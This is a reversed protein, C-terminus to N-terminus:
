EGRELYPTMGKRVKERAISLSKSVAGNSIGLALAIDSVSLSEFASLCFVEAERKPLETVLERVRQELERLVVQDGSPNTCVLDTVETDNVFRTRKRVADLARRVAITRLLQLTVLEPSHRWKRIAECFVEQAVDEADAQRGTVRLAAGLVIAASDVVLQNWNTM